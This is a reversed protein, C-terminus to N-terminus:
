GRCWSAAPPTSRRAKANDVPLGPEVAAVKGDVFGVDLIGDIGSGPDLVRGGRVVLDFM